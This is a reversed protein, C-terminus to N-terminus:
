AFCVFAVSVIGMLGMGECDYRSVVCQFLLLGPNSLDFFRLTCRGRRLRSIAQMLIPNRLEWGSTLWFAVASSAYHWDFRDLLNVSTTVAWWLGMPWYSWATDRASMPCVTFHVITLSQSSRTALHFSFSLDASILFTFVIRVQVQNSVIAGPGLQTCIEDTRITDFNCLGIASIVGEM